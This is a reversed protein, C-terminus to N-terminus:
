VLDELDVRSDGLSEVLSRRLPRDTETDEKSLSLSRDRRLRLYELDLLEEESAYRLRLRALDGLDEDGSEVRLSPRFRLYAREALISFARLGGRRRAGDGIGKFSLSM